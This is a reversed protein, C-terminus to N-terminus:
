LTAAWDIPPARVSDFSYDNAQANFLKPDPVISRRLPTPPAHERLGSTLADYSTAQLQSQQKLDRIRMANPIPINRLAKPSQRLSTRNHLKGEKHDAHLLGIRSVRAVDPPKKPLHLASICRRMTCSLAYAPRSAACKTMQLWQGTPGKEDIENPLSNFM